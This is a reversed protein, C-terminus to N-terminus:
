ISDRFFSVFDEFLEKNLMHSWQERDLNQHIYEEKDAAFRDKNEKAKYDYDLTTLWKDFAANFENIYTMDDYVYNHGQHELMVFRFRPDEAYKAYFRDYGISAPVFDDEAGHVIMVRTDSAALGNLVSSSAYKGYKIAEHLKVFPMLLAIGEGAERRGEAEVMEPSSNFGSCAIIARVEPHYSLVSGASYAGWSHGFLMIPLNPFNGSTEVFTIAHDLDIVGQPLGGVGKGESEDNGTADYAFVLFGNRAFYDAVDMYSNHGGGGFGHALIVIGQPAADGHSYLYGTLMQGKDSPFKYRTQELGDFDEKRLMQPEYSEFRQNFNENYIYIALGWLGGIALLVLAFFIILIIKITKKM